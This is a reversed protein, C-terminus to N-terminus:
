QLRTRTGQRIQEQLGKDTNKTVICPSCTCQRSYGDDDIDMLDAPAGWNKGFM